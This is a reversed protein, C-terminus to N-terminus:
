LMASHGVQASGPRKASLSVFVGMSLRIKEFRLDPEDINGSYVFQMQGKIFKGGLRLTLAPEVLWPTRNEKLLNLQELHHVTNYVDIRDFNLYNVRCSFAAEIWREKIGINPQIFFKSFSLDASGDPVVYWKLWNDYESYSFTHDQSGRGYGGYLEFVGINRIPTYYGLASEFYRSKSFDTYDEGSRDKGGFFFGATWAIHYPFSFGAQFEMFHNVDGTSGAILGTFELSDTYLPVNQINPSYYYHPFSCGTIFIVAFSLALAFNM